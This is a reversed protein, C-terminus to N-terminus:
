KNKICLKLLNIPLEQFYAIIKREHGNFSDIFVDDDVLHKFIDKKM